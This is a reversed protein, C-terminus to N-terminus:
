YLWTQNSNVKFTYSVFSTFVLKPLPFQTEPIQNQKGTM